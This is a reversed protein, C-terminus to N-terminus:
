NDTYQMTWKLSSIPQNAAVDTTVLFYLHNTGTNAGDAYGVKTKLGKRLIVNFLKINRPDGGTTTNLVFIKDYLIVFQRVDHKYPSFVDHTLASDEFLGATVPPVTASDIQWKFVVLRVVAVASTAAKFTGCLRISKPSIWMGVRQHNTNGQVVSATIDTAVGAQPVATDFYGDIMKVEESKKITKKVIKYVQKKEAKKLGQSYKWRRVAGAGNRRYSGIPRNSTATSM